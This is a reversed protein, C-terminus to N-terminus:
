VQLIFPKRCWQAAVPIFLYDYCDDCQRSFKRRAIRELLWSGGNEHDGRKEQAESVSMTVADPTPLDSEPTFIPFLIM